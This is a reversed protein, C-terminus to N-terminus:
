YGDGGRLVNDTLAAGPIEADESFSECAITPEGRKVFPPSQITIRVPM